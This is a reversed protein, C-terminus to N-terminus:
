NLDSTNRSYSEIQRFTIIFKALKISSFLKVIKCKNEHFGDNQLQKANFM